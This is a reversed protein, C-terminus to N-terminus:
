LSLRREEEESKAWVRVWEGPQGYASPPHAKKAHKSHHRSHHRSSHQALSSHLIDTDASRQPPAIPQFGEDYHNTHDYSFSDMDPFIPEFGEDYHNLHNYAHHIGDPEGVQMM